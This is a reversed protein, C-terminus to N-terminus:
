KVEIWNPMLITECSKCKFHKFEDSYPGTMNMYVHKHECVEKVIEQPCVLFAAHTQQRPNHTGCVEWWMEALPTDKTSDPNGWVVSQQELWQSFLQNAWTARDANTTSGIGRILEIQDFDEPKFLVPISPKM